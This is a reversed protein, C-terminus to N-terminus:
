RQVSQHQWGPRRSSVVWPRSRQARRSSVSTSRVCTTGARRTAEVNGGIAMVARGWPTKCIAIDTLFVLVIFTLFLISVGRDKNLVFAGGAAIAALMTTRVLLSIHSRPTLGAALRSRSDLLGAGVYAAACALIVVYSLCKPLFMQNAFKVLGSEFPINISGVHGLVWLQSGLFGLLGALTIVFSPVGWRTFIWGCFLGVVVGSGLSALIALPM